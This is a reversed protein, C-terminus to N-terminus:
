RVYWVEALARWNAFFYIAFALLFVLALVFTGPAKHSEMEMSEERIKDALQKEAPM